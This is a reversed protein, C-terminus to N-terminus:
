RTSARGATPDNLWDLTWEGVQDRWARRSFTHDAGALDHRVVRHARVLRRWDASRAVCDLFEKATLDNASLILLVRGSFRDLGRAMREPFPASATEDVTTVRDAVPAGKDSRGADSRGASRVMGALAGLSKWPNIGGGLLKKWFAPQVLKRAYYHKLYARAIGDETRVWPNLIAVGAIRPDRHAYMLIASAGDCLGWLVVERVAPRRAVLTDVAAAIDDDLHEFDIFKGGSDGKGRCDFRLVPVGAAAWRRALMVFQRHSGARVQPGGVVIVVGREAEAAPGHLVGIMSADGCTITLPIEDSVVAMESGADAM